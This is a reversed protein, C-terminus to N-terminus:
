MEEPEINEVMDPEKEQEIELEEQVVNLNDVEIKEEDEEHEVVALTSVKHDSKLKIIRVGQTNRGLLSIDQIRVRIVMGMDTIVILDHDEDVKRLACLPGTKDTKNIGKVGQGGRKHCTFESAKTKKGYGNDTLVLIEDEESDIITSGIVFNGKSLKIGKVGTATRGMPRVDSEKFRIIKGNSSGILVDKNGDTVKVNLLEDNDELTIANIGGQRINKYKSIETKKVKGNKTVFLLYGEQELSSVSSLSALKENEMLNLINVVPIGKSQRSGIPIQYGKLFYIRGFNTFFLIYDHSSAILMNEVYDDEHMKLGALGVGGRNQAKYEGTEMRKIYGNKTVTIIINQVPILDENEINIDEHLNIESLRPRSFKNSIETLETILIEKKRDDSAIIDKYDIIKIGLDHHEEKIKDIELSTLKQLKMDLIARAQIESLKYVEMLKNKAEETTKSEKILKICNDIDNLAVLLGELIHQRAEAKELDFKTRRLIIEIQHEVYYKLVDILSLQKPEGKVLAIMNIGFTSQLQTYKFLNNLMVNPNVDKRLEIVIRMGKRSSEDRLDTIGEVIKNKAVEAIKEILKTKNVQFPIETVVIASKNKYNVIDCKARMTISGQGTQYANRLGTLGLIQGGTPFDPGKIFQMLEELRIEPNKIYEITGLIVESLNHTPINTAMGVAIGTSGNILLNPIRSPLVEPEYESSDYNDVFNVTEKDLDRVMEMAIKSMRAETYRMAAAGDGDVSGFNGHGDVLPAICNFPQAMRVMAEYVSSDGHPHYKGIVEGVIRASKKHPRDSYMGLDNMAYLIRRQVPKLGDRVDPLARAVIVSMAYSLFSTKMTNSLNVNQIKGHNHGDINFEEQEQINNEIKENDIM